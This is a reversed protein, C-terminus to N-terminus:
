LRYVFAKQIIKSNPLHSAIAKDNLSIAMKSIAEQEETSKAATKNHPAPITESFREHNITFDIVYGGNVAKVSM